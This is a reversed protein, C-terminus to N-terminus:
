EEEVWSYSATGSSVTCKLSYTGDTTPPVPARSPVLTMETGDQHIIYDGDSEAMSPLHQLKDRLNQPYETVTGVPIECTGTFEETGWDNCIQPSTFTPATETTPTALEYVLYVGSM